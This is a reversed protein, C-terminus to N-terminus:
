EREQLALDGHMKKHARPATDCERLSIYLLKGHDNITASEDIFSRQLFAFYGKIIINQLFCLSSYL